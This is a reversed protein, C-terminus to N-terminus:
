HVFKCFVLVQMTWLLNKYLGLKDQSSLVAAQTISIYLLFSTFEDGSSGKVILTKLALIRPAYSLNGYKKRIPVKISLVCM